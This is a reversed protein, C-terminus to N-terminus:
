DPTRTLCERRPEPAFEKGGWKRESSSLAARSRPEQTQIFQELTPAEVPLDDNMRLTTSAELEAITLRPIHRLAVLQRDVGRDHTPHVVMSGLELPAPTNQATLPARGSSIAVNNGTPGAM